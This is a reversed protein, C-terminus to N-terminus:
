GTSATAMILLIALATSDEGSNKCFSLTRRGAGVGVVWSAMAWAASSTTSATPARAMTTKVAM